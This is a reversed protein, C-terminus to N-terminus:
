RFAQRSTACVPCRDATVVQIDAVVECVGPVDLMLDIAALRQDHDHAYGRVLLSGGSHAIIEMHDDPFGKRRLAELIHDRLRQLRGGAASDNELAADHGGKSVQSIAGAYWPYDSRRREGPNTASAEKNASFEPYYPRGAEWAHYRRLLRELFRTRIENSWYEVAIARGRRWNHGLQRVQRGYRNRHCIILTELSSFEGAEVVHLLDSVLEREIRVTDVSKQLGDRERCEECNGLANLARTLKHDIENIQRLLFSRSREREQGGDMSM